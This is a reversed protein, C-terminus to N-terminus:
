KMGKNIFEIMPQATSFAKLIQKEAKGSILDADPIELYTYFGKMRIYEDAPDNPEFGKPARTLIEPAQVGEPYVKLFQKDEVIKKWEKLGYQIEKRIDLLDPAEPMYVGGGVFSGGPLLQFFYSALPSKKGGESIIAFFNTKYPTKDKSFRIDRNIRNVCKKADLGAAKINDDFKSIGSILDAVAQTFDAKAGEYLARNADFWEKNNNNKLKSLFDFTSKQIKM